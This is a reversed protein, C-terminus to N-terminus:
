GLLATLEQTIGDRIRTESVPVYWSKSIDLKVATAAIAAKITVGKGTAVLTDGDWRVSLGHEDAYKQVRATVRRKAEATGLKHSITTTTAM